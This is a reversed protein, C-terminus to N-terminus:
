RRYFIRLMPGGMNDPRSCAAPSVTDVGVGLQDQSVALRRCARESLGEITVRLLTPSAAIVEFNPNIYLAPELGFRDLDIEWDELNPGAPDVSLDRFGDLNRAAARIESTITVASRTIESVQNNTNVQQFLIVAGVLLGLGAIIGLSVDILGFGRSRYKRFAKM